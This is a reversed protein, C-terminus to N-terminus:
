LKRFMNGAGILDSICEGFRPPMNLKKSLNRYIGTMGILRSDQTAFFLAKERADIKLTNEWYEQNRSSADDYDQGFTDPHNKLAELRLVRYADVDQPAAHRIFIGGPLSSSM